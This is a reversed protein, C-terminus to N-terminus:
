LDVGVGSVPTCYSPSYVFVICHYTYMCLLIMRSYALLIIHDTAILVCMINILSDTSERYM